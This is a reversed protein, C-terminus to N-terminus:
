LFGWQIGTLKSAPPFHSATLRPQYSMQRLLQTPSIFAAHSYSPRLVGYIIQFIVQHPYRLVPLVHQAPFHRRVQFLHKLSNSLLILKPYIRHFDHLIVHVYKNLNRRSIGWRLYHLYQFTHRGTLYKLLKRFQPFLQPRPLKPAISIKDPTYTILDSSVDYPLINFILSM